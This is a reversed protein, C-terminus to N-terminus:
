LHLNIRFTGTYQHEIARIQEETFAWFHALRKWEGPTLQKYALKFLIERLRENDWRKSDDKSTSRMKMRATNLVPKPAADRKFNNSPEEQHM